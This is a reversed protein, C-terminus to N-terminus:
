SVPKCLNELLEASDQYEYLDLLIMVTDAFSAREGKRRTLQRRLKVLRPEDEVYIRILKTEKM